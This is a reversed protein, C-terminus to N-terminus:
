ALTQTRPMACSPSCILSPCVQQNTTAPSPDLSSMAFPGVFVQAVTTHHRPRCPRGSRAAHWSRSPLSCRACPAVPLSSQVAQRRWANWTRAGAGAEMEAAICRGRVRFAVTVKRWRTIMRVAQRPGGCPRSIPPTRCRCPLDPPAAKTKLLPTSSNTPTPFLRASGRTSPVVSPPRWPPPRRQLPVSPARHPPSSFDLLSRAVM